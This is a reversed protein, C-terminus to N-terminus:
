SKAYYPLVQELLEQVHYNEGELLHLVEGISPRMEPKRRVCLYAARAMNYLENTDYSEGIRPDIIEHLALREILPEAWRLLMQNEGTSFNIAKRGSILQLLVVGFAYIDTRVSVVGSEAYEPALYGFTGLVRTHISSEDTKWKALGFDGLMPVFDHTLLINSPRLDRHIIPGARCEEHLFRLGRAIGVAIAQRKHWELVDASKDFLHWALSGNCIYEYVLINHDDKCCYGLLMVINKHRAFGLIFVESSFAMHGEATDKKHLKAAIMQGDKLTGKYVRGYGGEGIMNAESFNNTVVQIDSFSFRMSEKIYMVTRLGCGSCLVPKESCSSQLDNEYSSPLSQHEYASRNKRTSHDGLIQIRSPLNEMKVSLVDEKQHNDTSSSAVSLKQIESDDHSSFSPHSGCSIVSQETYVNDHTNSKLQVFKVRSYFPSQQSVDPDNTAFSRLVVVTLSEELLSVKCPLYRVYFKLDRRLQRDLVVWVAKCSIVEQLVVKKIPTGAVIKVMVDIGDKCEQPIRLLLNMFIDVKKSVEEELTRLNTGGFSDICAKTQYGMPNTVSHLVGLVVLVHGKCLIDGRMCVNRLASGFEHESRERTADYAIVTHPRHDGEMM